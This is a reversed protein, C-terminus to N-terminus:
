PHDWGVLWWRPWRRLLEATAFRHPEDNAQPVEIAVGQGVAGGAGEGRLINARPISRLGLRGPRAAPALVEASCRPAQAPERPPHPCASGTAIVLLDQCIGVIGLLNQCTWVFGVFGSSDRSIRVFGVLAGSYWTDPPAPASPVPWRASKGVWEKENEWGM